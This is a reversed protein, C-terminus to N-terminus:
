THGDHTGPFTSVGLGHAYARAHPGRRSCIRTRVYPQSAQFPFPEITHAPVPVSTMLPVTPPLVTYTPPQVPMALPPSAHVALDILLFAAPPLPIATPAFPPPLPDTVLYVVLVHTMASFSVEESESVFTPPVTPNPDVTQKNEPPLTYSSSARNQDRLLAMLETMNTAMNTAMNAALQNVIGELATIRASDSSNSSAPTTPPLVPPIVAPTQPPPAHTVSPQSHAATPSTIEELLTPPHEGAM